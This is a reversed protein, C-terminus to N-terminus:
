RMSIVDGADPIRGSIFSFIFVIIGGHPSLNDIRSAMMLIVEFVSSRRIGLSLQFFRSEEKKALNKSHLGKQYESPPPTEWSFSSAPCKV